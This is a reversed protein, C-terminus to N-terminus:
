SGTRRPTPPTWDGYMEAAGVVGHRFKATRRLYREAARKEYMWEDNIKSGAQKRLNVKRRHWNQRSGGVRERMENETYYEQM